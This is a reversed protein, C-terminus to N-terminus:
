VCVYKNQLFIFVEMKGLFDVTSRV